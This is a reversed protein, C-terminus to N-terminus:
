EDIVEYTAEFIERGIPYVEGQVGRIIYDGHVARLVGERTEVREGPEAPRFEVVVPKKRCRKWQVM